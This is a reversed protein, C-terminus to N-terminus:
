IYFKSHRDTHPWIGGGVTGTERKGRKSSSNRMIIISRRYHSSFLSWWTISFDHITPPTAPGSRPVPVLRISATFNTRDKGGGAGEAGSPGAGKGREVGKGRKDECHAFRRTNRITQITRCRRLCTRKRVGTNTRARQSSSVRCGTDKVRDEEEEESGEKRRGM